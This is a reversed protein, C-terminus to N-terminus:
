THFIQMSFKDYWSGAIILVAPVNGRKWTERRAFVIELLRLSYRLVTLDYFCM